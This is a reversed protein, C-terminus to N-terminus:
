LQNNKPFRKGKQQESQSLSVGVHGQEELCRNVREGIAPHRSSIFCSTARLPQCKEQTDHPRKNELRNATKGVPHFASSITIRGYHPNRSCPM